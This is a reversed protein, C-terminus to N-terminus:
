RIQARNTAGETLVYGFRSNSRGHRSDRGGLFSTKWDARSAFVECVQIHNSSVSEESMPNQILAQLRGRCQQKETSFV